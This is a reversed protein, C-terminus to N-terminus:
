RLGTPTYRWTWGNPTDVFVFSKGDKSISVGEGRAAPMGFIITPLVALMMTAEETTAVAKEEACQTEGMYPVVAAPYSRTGTLQLTNALATVSAITWHDYTGSVRVAPCPGNAAPPTMTGPFNKITPTGVLATENQNWDFTLEVRDTAHARAIRAGGALISPEGSYEGVVVYRVVTFASWKTMVDMNMDQARAPVTFCTLSAGLLAALRCPSHM